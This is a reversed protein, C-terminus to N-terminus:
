VPLYYKENMIDHGAKDHYHLVVHGTDTNKSGKVTTGDSFTYGIKEIPSKGQGGQAASAVSTMAFASVMVGCVILAILATRM